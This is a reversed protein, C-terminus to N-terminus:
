IEHTTTTTTSKLKTNPFSNSFANFFYYIKTYTNNYNKDGIGSDDHGISGGGGCCDDDDDDDDCKKEALPLFYENLANTITLIQV